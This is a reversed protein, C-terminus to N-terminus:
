VHFAVLLNDPHHFAGPGYYKFELSNYQNKEEEKYDLEENIAIDESEGMEKQLIAGM